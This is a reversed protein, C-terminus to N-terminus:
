AEHPRHRKHAPQEHHTGVADLAQRYRRLRAQARGLVTDPPYGASGPEGWSWGSLLVMGEAVTSAAHIHFRGRDVADVVRADLMLHRRNREPILVGQTGDLGMRECSKFFGEIKENIGGVPLMDGQANLAGTVAIGQALPIGSLASLLAYLEACSASDGEIDGYEQEFVLSAELALPAQQAFLTMLYSHLVLVGKDHVPGSLEVERDISLLGKDGAHTRATVRMPFGFSYDGLMVVGLGNVSAAMRGSLPMVREGQALADLLRQEPEDHRRTRALRAAHVDVRQVEDVQRQRALAASEMVLAETAAFVASQRGQDQALRHSDEILLAVAQASFHPLQWRACTRAVFVATERWTQPSAVFSEALDVKCRFRRALEPDLSQVADFEDPSAVLAMKVEAQVAEPTLSVAAVPAYPVAPEDIQLRGSRVFRRLREWVPAEALVDRLHLLLFGGHAQLLSGARIRTFDTVLMEGDSEYEICGFLQRYTPHDEHLVPAGQLGHNDVVVNVRLSALLEQLAEIRLTEEDDDARAQFLEVHELVEAQLAQLWAELRPQESAAPHVSQALAQWERELLPRVIQRRLAALGENRVHELARTKDLFVAIESRLRAEAQDIGARAQPSLAMAKSTTMPEGSEDRCTFVLHGQERMLSFHHAEAFANLEAYAQAEESKFAQEIRESEAKVDPEALRRAITTQLRKVLQLMHQRLQRGEGAPLRLALPREPRDVHHLYLLDPPTACSAAHAQMLQRMLTTRGTGVEGVVMLNYGPLAMGLGFRAAAEARSQGIWPLTQEVLERTSAFGLTAVDVQRSLAAPELRQCPM